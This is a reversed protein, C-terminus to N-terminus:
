LSQHLGYFSQIHREATRQIEGDITEAVPITLLRKTGSTKRGQVVIDALLNESSARLFIGMYNGFNNWIGKEFSITIDPNKLDALIYVFLPIFINCRIEFFVVVVSFFCGICRLFM